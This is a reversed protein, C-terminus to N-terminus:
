KSWPFVTALIFAVAEQLFVQLGEVSSLAPLLLYGNEEGEIRGQLPTKRIKTLPYEGENFNTFCKRRQTETGRAQGGYGQRLLAFRTTFGKASYTATVGTVPISM